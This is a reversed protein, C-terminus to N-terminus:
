GVFIPARGATPIIVIDMWSRDSPVLITQGFVNRQVWNHAANLPRLDYRFASVELGIAGSSLATTTNNNSLQFVPGQNEYTFLETMYAEDFRSLSQLAISNTTNTPWPENNGSLPAEIQDSPDNVQGMMNAVAQVNQTSWRQTAAPLFCLVDLDQLAWGSPITGIFKVRTRFQLLQRPQVQLQFPTVRVQAGANITGSISQSDLAYGAPAVNNQSWVVVVGHQSLAPLAEVMTVEFFPTNANADAVPGSTGLLMVIDSMTAVPEFERRFLPGRM